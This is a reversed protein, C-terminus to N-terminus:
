INISLPKWMLSWVMPLKDVSSLSFQVMNGRCSEGQIRPAVEKNPRFLCTGCFLTDNEPDQTKFLSYIKMIWCRESTTHKQVLLRLLLVFTAFSHDVNTACLNKGLCNLEMINTCFIGLESYLVFPILTSFYPRKDQVPYFFSCNQRLCPWLNQLSWRCM